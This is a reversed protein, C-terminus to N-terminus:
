GWQRTCFDSCSGRCFAPGCCSGRAAARASGRCTSNGQRSRLQECLTQLM